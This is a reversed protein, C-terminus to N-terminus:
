FLRFSPLSLLYWSFFNAVFATLFAGRPALPILKWLVLGEALPVLLEGLLMAERYRIFHSECVRPWVYVVLPHTMVNIALIWALSRLFTQRRLLWFYFPAEIAVTAAFFLLYTALQPAPWLHIEAYSPLCPDSPDFYSFLMRTAVYCEM